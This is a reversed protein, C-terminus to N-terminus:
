PVPGAAPLATRDLWRSPQAPVAPRAPVIALGVGVAAIVYGLLSVAVGIGVSDADVMAVGVGTVVLVGALSGALLLQTGRLVRHASLRRSAADYGPDADIVAPRRAVLWLVGETAAVLAGAWAWTIRRLWRPAADGRPVLAARRVAGTPRPWTREGIAHVVLYALGIVAPSLAVLLPGPAPFDQEPLRSDYTVSMADLLAFSLVVAPIGAAVWAALNVGIAHRRAADAAESPAPAPRNSVMIALAVVGGVVLALILLALLLALAM